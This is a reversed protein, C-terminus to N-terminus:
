IVAETITKDGIHVTKTGPIKNKNFCFSVLYGKKAHYSDLYGAIQEEGRENYANGRWIKLEIIYQHGLYDVIVDTRTEDRTQAEVYYNGVGNIIPKLYLLFLKRGTNEVFADDNKGYIDNFHMVFRSLLHDMDLQGDKIFQNKDISGCSFIDAMQEKSIFLNYLWTDFIRNAVVLKGQFNNILGFMSAIDMTRESINYYIKKGQYLAGYLM